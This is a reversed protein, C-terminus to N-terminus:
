KCHFFLSSALFSFPSVLFLLIFFAPSIERIIEEIEEDYYCEEYDRYGDLNKILTVDNVIVYDNEKITLDERDIYKLFKNLEVIWTNLSSTKPRPNLTYLYNKFEITKSKDIAVDEDLWDIFKKVNAKYQKLTNQSYEQFTQETIWEDLLPYLDQKKIEAM